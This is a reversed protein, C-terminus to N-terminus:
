TVEYEPGSHARRWKWPADPCDASSNSHASCHHAYELHTSHWHLRPNVYIASEAVASAGHLLYDCQALMMIDLLVDHAVTLPEHVHFNGRKGEVRTGITQARLRGHLLTANWLAVDQMYESSETAVYVLGEPFRHAFHRVYPRFAEPRVAFRGSRKDSGRMHLGLVPRVRQPNIREWLRDVRAQYVANLRHVRRSAAHGRLRWQQFVTANFRNCTNTEECQNRAPSDANYWQHIPWDFLYQIGPYFFAKPKPQHRVVNSCSALWASVNPCYGEFFTEWLQGGERAWATGMTGRVWAPDFRILPVLAKHGTYMLFNAVMSFFLNGFAADEKAGQMVLVTATEGPPPCTRTDPCPTFHLAQVLADDRPPKPHQLAIKSSSSVPDAQLCSCNRVAATCGTAFTCAGCWEQIRGNRGNCQFAGICRDKVWFRPEGSPYCGYSVGPICPHKSKSRLFRLPECPFREANGASM